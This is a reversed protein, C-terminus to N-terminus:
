RTSLETANREAEHASMMTQKIDDLVVAQDGLRASDLWTAFAASYTAGPTPSDADPMPPAPTDAPIREDAVMQDFTACVVTAAAVTTLWDLKHLTDHVTTAGDRPTVGGNDLVVRLGTLAVGAGVTAVIGGPLFSTSTSVAAFATDWLQLAGDTDTIERERALTDVLGLLAALDTVSHRASDSSADLRASMGSTIENRRSVLRNFAADDVIVSELLRAGEGPQLRWDAAHAATFQMLWPAILDVGFTTIAPDLQGYFGVGSNYRDRIFRTLAPIAIGAEALTMNNPSTATVLLQEAIRADHAADLLLAPDAIHAMVFATPAGPTDLMFQMLMDATGPGPRQVDSWGGERYRTVLTTSISVLAASDLHLHQVLLAASYPTMDSLLTLPNTYPHRKHDDVLLAGLSGVIGDIDALRQQKADGIHGAVTREAVITIRDDGLLNCLPAWGNTTVNALFADALPPRRAIDALTSNLWALENDSVLTSIDGHSLLWGLAQVQDLTVTPEAPATGNTAPLPDTVVAWGYLSQIVGFRSLTLDSLGIQVPRYEETAVCSLMSDLTPLWRAGIQDQVSRVMLMASFADPDSSRIRHLEDVSRRMATQLSYLLLRDYGM